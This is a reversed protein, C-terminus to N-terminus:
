APRIRSTEIRRTSGNAFQVRAYTNRWLILTAITEHGDPHQVYVHGRTAALHVLNTDAAPTM